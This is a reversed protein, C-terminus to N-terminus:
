PGNSPAVPTGDPTVLYHSKHDISFFIYKGPLLADLECRGDADTTVMYIKSPTELRFRITVQSLPQKTVADTVRGAVVSTGKVVEQGSPPRGAEVLQFAGLLAVLFAATTM